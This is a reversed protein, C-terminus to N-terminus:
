RNPVHKRNRSLFQLTVRLETQNPAPLHSSLTLTMSILPMYPTL